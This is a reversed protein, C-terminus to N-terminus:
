QRGSDYHLQVQTASLVTNYVAVDDLAGSLYDPSLYGAGGIVLPGTNSGQSRTSAQTQKLAGNVYLRINAGDYTGVMHYWTGTQLASSSTAGDCVGSSDCRHFNLLNPTGSTAELYFNWGRNGGGEKSIVRRWLTDAANPKLWFEVSFSATGTFGYVNGATVYDNSGDFSTATDADGALTGPQALTPSNTYTGAVAAKVDAASTGASEGPRWYSVPGSDLVTDQYSRGILYHAQVRTQSLATSFLAIEDLSGPIQGTWSGDSWWAGIGFGASVNAAYAAAGSAVLIGNVYLRGTTGDYTGVVHAWSNLTVAPGVVNTSTSGNGIGLRWTNDSGIGLWYGRMSAGAALEYWSAAVTRWTGAGGTPKVWGEITFQSPNLAADFPVIAYQSSGNFTAATNADGDLAGTAGLTPSATYTGHRGYIGDAATSGSSEGLRWYGVPSDALVADKYCRGTNYHTRIQAATLMSGYVAVEDITGLFYEHTGGEDGIHLALTQDLVTITTTLRLVGDAYVKTGGAVGSQFSMAVHHWSNDTVNLGTSRSVGATNDWTALVGNDVALNYAGQKNIADQWSAGGGATKIWAEVTGTNLQLNAPNGASVYDNTGDFRAARNNVTDPLAGSQALTPGNTYTGANSGKSDAATTGSTEDLRWYSVPNDALVADRYCVPFSAASTVTNATVTASKTFVALTSDVTGCGLLAVVVLPLALMWRM